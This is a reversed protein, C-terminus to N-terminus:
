WVCALMAMRVTNRKDDSILVLAVVQAIKMIGSAMSLLNMLTNAYPWTLVVLEVNVFFFVAAVLLQVETNDVYVHEVAFIINTLFM